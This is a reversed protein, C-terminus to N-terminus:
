ARKSQEHHSIFHDVWVTVAEARRQVFHVFFEQNFRCVDLAGCRIMCAEQQLKIDACTKCISRPRCRSKLNRDVELELAMYRCRAM